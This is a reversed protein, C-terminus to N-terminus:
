KKEIEIKRLTFIKNEFESLDKQQRHLVMLEEVTKCKAVLKTLSEIKTGSVTKTNDESDIDKSDDILLLGNLAYKRAYSSSTGFIQALDMGKKEGQVGAFATTEVIQGSESVIKATAKVMLVGGIEIIEDNLIIFCNYKKLLPKVSELIGEVNRYNYKGFTNVLLKPAKLESQIEILEKM